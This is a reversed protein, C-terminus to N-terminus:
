GSSDLSRGQFVLVPALGLDRGGRYWEKGSKEGCKWVLGRNKRGEVLWHGFWLDRSGMRPCGFDIGSLLLSYRWFFIRGCNAKGM